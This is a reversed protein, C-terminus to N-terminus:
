KTIAFRDFQQSEKEKVIVSLVKSGPSGTWCWEVLQQVQEATGTAIIYVSDDPLNKVFGTIHLEVAKDLTYKRYWVAQVKGTVHISVTKLM